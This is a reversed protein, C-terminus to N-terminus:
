LFSGVASFTWSNMVQSRSLGNLIADDSAQARPDAPRGVVGGGGAGLRPVRQAAERVVPEVTPGEADAEVHRQAEAVAVRRRGPRRDAVEIASSVAPDAAGVVQQDKRELRACLPIGERVDHEVPADIVPVVRGVDPALARDAVVDGLGAVADDSAADQEVDSRHHRRYAVLSENAALLVELVSRDVIDGAQLPSPAARDAEALPGLCADVLGLVVLSREIRRGLDGFRWAPGHVTSEDWLGVFAALDAICTDLEDIAARLAERVLEDWSRGGVLDSDAEEWLELLHAHFRWPSSMSMLQPSIMSPVAVM